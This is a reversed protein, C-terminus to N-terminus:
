ALVEVAPNGDVLPLHEVLWDRVRQIATLQWAGGDALYLAVRPLEGQHGQQLRLVFLSSPQTVERFTRFPSLTVPNPVTVDGVLHVGNRVEVVQAMGNDLAKKVNETKVGSLLQLLQKRDDSEVFRVQLGILFDELDQWADVFRLTADVCSATILTERARTEADLPGLVNVCNPSAVHVVVTALDLADRNAKLYDCVSQLTSLALFLAAPGPKVLTRGDVAIWDKPLAICKGIEMPQRFSEKLEKIADGNVM